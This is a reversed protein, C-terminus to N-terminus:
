NDRENLYVKKLNEANFIENQGTGSESPQIWFLFSEYEQGNLEVWGVICSSIKNLTFLLDVYDCVFAFEFKDFIFFANEGTLKHRISIEGMMINPLTYVFLSPSPFYGAPDKMTEYFKRDTDLSSSANALFMGTKEKPPLSRDKLLIEATLFGLKSLSDMKFFKPYSIGLSRFIEASLSEFDALKSAHSLLKGDKMVKGRRISASGQISIETKM